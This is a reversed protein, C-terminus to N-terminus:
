TKRVRETARRSSIKLEYNQTTFTILNRDDKQM